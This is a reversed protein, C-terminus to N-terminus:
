WNEGKNFSSITYVVVAFSRSLIEQDYVPLVSKVNDLDTSYNFTCRDADYIPVLLCLNLLFLPLLFGVLIWSM